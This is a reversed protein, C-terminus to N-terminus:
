RIFELIIKARNDWTYRQGDKHAQESVKQSFESNNLAKKIGEALKQPNDPEVFIANNEDLVERFSPLDSAIIPKKSAMYEFMKMPSTYEESTKSKQTGTLVLCDAARLFYPIKPYEQFGLILVNKLKNRKVFNKFDSLYWKIGGVIVILIDENLFRSALALTEVRKWKYLHGTYLVLKKNLPLNLKKRCEEKTEGIKFDDLDAGDSAILIKDAEIGM